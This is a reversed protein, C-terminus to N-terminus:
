TRGAPRTQREAPPQMISHRHQLTREDGRNCGQQQQGSGRGVGPPLTSFPLGSLVYDASSLGREALIKEVDAASGTVTVLRPDDIAEKLYRTFDANTDITM